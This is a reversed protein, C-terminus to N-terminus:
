DGLTNRIEKLVASGNMAGYAAMDVIIIKKDPYLKEVAKRNFRIQPALLILDARQGEEELKAFPFAEITYDLGENQSTERIKDRMM